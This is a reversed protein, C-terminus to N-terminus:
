IMSAEDILLKAQSLLLSLGSLIQKTMGHSALNVRWLTRVTEGLAGIARLRTVLTATKLLWILVQDYRM